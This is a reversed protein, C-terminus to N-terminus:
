RGERGGNGGEKRGKLGVHTAQPEILAPHAIEVASKRVRFFGLDLHQVLRRLFTLFIILYFLYLHIFLYM